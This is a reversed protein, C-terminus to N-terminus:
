NTLTSMEGRGACVTLKRILASQGTPALMPLFGANVYTRLAIVYSIQRSDYTTRFQRASRHPRNDMGNKKAIRAVPNINCSLLRLPQEFLM